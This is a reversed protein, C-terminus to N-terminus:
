VALAFAELANYVSQANRRAGHPLAALTTILRRVEYESWKTYQEKLLTSKAAWFLMGVLAEPAVGSLRAEALATFLAQADRQKLAHAVSFTNYTAIPRKLSYESVKNAGERLAASPIHTLVVFIHTSERMEALGEEPAVGDFLVIYNSKFLGQTSLLEDMSVPDGDTIRIYEAAPAKARLGAVLAQAKARAQTEDTGCLVYLM